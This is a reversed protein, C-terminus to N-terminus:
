KKKKQQKWKSAMDLFEHFKVGTYEELFSNLNLELLQHVPFGPMSCDM